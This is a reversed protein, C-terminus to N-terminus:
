LAYNGKNKILLVNVISQAETGNLGLANALYEIIEKEKDGVTGDALLLEMAMAFITPKFEGSILPVSADIMSKSGYNDHAFFANRILVGVDFGNFISKYVCQTALLDSEPDSMNGDVKVCALLISVWAEQENKPQFVKAPTPSFFNDFLGM